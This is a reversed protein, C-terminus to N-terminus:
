ACWAAGCTAVSRPAHYLWVPRLRARPAPPWACGRTAPSTALLTQLVHRGAAPQAAHGALLGADPRRRTGGIRHRACHRPHFLTVRPSSAGCCASCCRRGSRARRCPLAPHRAPHAAVAPSRREIPALPRSVPSPLAWAVLMLNALVYLTMQVPMGEYICASRASCASVPVSCPTRRAGPQLGPAAAM